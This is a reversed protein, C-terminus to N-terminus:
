LLPSSADNFYFPSKVNEGRHIYWFSQLTWRPIIGYLYSNTNCHPQLCFEHSSFACTHTNKAYYSYLNWQMAVEAVPKLIPGKADRHSDEPTSMLRWHSPTKPTHWALILSACTYPLPLEWILRRKRHRTSPQKYLTITTRFCFTPQLQTSRRQNILLYRWLKKM